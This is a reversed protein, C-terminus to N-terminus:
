SSTHLKQERLALNTKSLDLLFKAYFAQASTGSDEQTNCTYTWGVGEEL